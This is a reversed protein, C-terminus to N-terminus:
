WGSSYGEAGILPVFRCNELRVAMSQGNQKRVFQLEQVTAPGVPIVMRGGESLQDVLITPIRPAAASVLICDFPACDRM